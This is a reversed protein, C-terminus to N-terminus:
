LFIVTGHYNPDTINRLFLYVIHSPLYKEGEIQDLDHYWTMFQNIYQSALTGQNLKLTELKNQLSEAIKNKITNGDYWTLLANWATHGDKENKHQRILHHSIIGITAGAPQSYVAQNM